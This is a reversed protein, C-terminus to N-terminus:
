DDTRYYYAETFVHALPIGRATLLDRMEYFMENAGCLYFHAHDPFTLGQARASVRGQFCLPAPGGSICAHYRTGPELEDRYFLDTPTRVGHLITLDLGPFTRLYSRCPAIGTGTAIFVMPRAPDRVTFEGLPASATIEDGPQLTALYPTLRGEPILRYLVRLTEDHEGSAITYTRGELLDRGHLTVLQGARFPVEDRSLELEFGTPSLQRHALVRAKWTLPELATSM